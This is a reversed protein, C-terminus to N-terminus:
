RFCVVEDDEVHTQRLLATQVYQVRHAAATELPWNENQRSLVGGIGLHGRQPCAGVVVDCLGEGELLQKGTDLRQRPPRSRDGRRHERHSVEREILRRAFNSSASSEDIQRGLFVGNE